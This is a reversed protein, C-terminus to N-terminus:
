PSSIPVREATSRRHETRPRAVQDLARLGGARRGHRGLGRRARGRARRPGRGLQGAALPTPHRDGGAPWEPARGTAGATRGSAEMEGPESREPRPSSAWSLQHHLDRPAASGSFAGRILPPMGSNRPASISHLGIAIRLAARLRPPAWTSPARAVGLERSQLQNCARCEPSRPLPRPPHLASSSRGDVLDVVHLPCKVAKPSSAAFSSFPSKGFSFLGVPQSALWQHCLLAM